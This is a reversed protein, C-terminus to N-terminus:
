KMFLLLFVMLLCVLIDIKMTEAIPARGCDKASGRILNPGCIFVRANCSLQNALKGALAGSVQSKMLMVSVM